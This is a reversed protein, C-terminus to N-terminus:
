PVKGDQGEMQACEPCYFHKPPPPCACMDLHRSGIFYGCTPCLRCNVCVDGLCAAIENTM